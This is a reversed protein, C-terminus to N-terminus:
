KSEEKLQIVNKIGDHLRFAEEVPYGELLELVWMETQVLGKPLYKENQIAKRSPPFFTGGVSSIGVTFDGTGDIGVFISQIERDQLSCFWRSTPNTSLRCQGGRAEVSSKVLETIENRVQDDDTGIVFVSAFHISSCAAVLFLLAFPLAVKLKSM